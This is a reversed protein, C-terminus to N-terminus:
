HNKKRSKEAGAGRVTQRLRMRLAIAGLIASAFTGIIVGFRAHAQLLEDTFALGGILMAVTFGIGALLAMAAVDPLDVGNGLRLKTFKTLLWVSGWIGLLKGLPLGIAVGITIPDTLTKIIGGEAGLVNVGASFFAFIPLALGASWPNWKEVFDHTMQGERTRTAPVVLGLAVGAITAHVGSSLMFAWAIVGLPLLIWWHRIGKNVLVAFVAIVLLSAALAVFNLGSSYFVAIVIIALLDDVVALTLLFTRAAPPLGKGFISLIAVAFAIDTATPVAWGSFHSSGLTLQITVYLIAPGIMGFAAAIMPLAAEKMDRLSGTVFETKLELGVVFFFITLLGDAAWEHVSLHLGLSKPGFEMHSLHEYFHSLPSNAIVLAILAIVIVLMGASTENSLFHKIRDAIDKASADAAPSM